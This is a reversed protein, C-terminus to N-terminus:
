DDDSEKLAEAVERDITWRSPELHHESAWAVTMEASGAENLLRGGVQDHTLYLRTRRRFRKERPNASGVLRTRGVVMALATVFAREFTGLGSEIKGVDHLLASALVERRQGLRDGLLAVTGRAVGVAHRRDPGSMRSWLDVEAPLLCSRAWHEDDSSPGGPWLAGFFRSALHRLSGFESKVEATM